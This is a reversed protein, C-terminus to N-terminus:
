RKHGMIETWTRDLSGGYTSESEPSTESGTTGVGAETVDGGGFDDSPSQDIGSGFFGSLLPKSAKSQDEGTALSSGSNSRLHLSSSSSSLFSSVFLLIGTMIVFLGGAGQSM